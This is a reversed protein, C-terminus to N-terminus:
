SPTHRPTCAIESRSCLLRSQPLVVQEPRFTQSLRTYRAVPETGCIARLRPWHTPAVPAFLLAFSKAAFNKPWPKASARAQEAYSRIGLDM